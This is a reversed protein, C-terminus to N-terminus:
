PKVVGLRHVSHRGAVRGAFASTPENCIGRLDHAPARCHDAISSKDGDSIFQEGKYDNPFKMMINLKRESSVVAGKGELQGGGGVLMKFKATGQIVRSKNAGRAAATGLSDLHRAVVDEPKLDAAQILSPWLVLALLWLGSKASFGM